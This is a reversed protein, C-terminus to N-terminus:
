SPKNKTDTRLHTTLTGSQTFRKNCISCQFLKDKTHTRMHVKMSINTLFPKIMFNANFRNRM